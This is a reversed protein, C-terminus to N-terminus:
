VQVRFGLVFKYKELDQPTAKVASIATYNTVM